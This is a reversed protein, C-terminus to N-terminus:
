IMHDVTDFAASLDLLLLLSTKRSCTNTVLDNHIKCLATETSHFERYASQVVPIVGNQVFLPNLQDLMAREIIKSLFTLNSVPRYNAMNECDLGPKKLSPHILSEKESLVFNSEEFCKNIIKTVFPSASEYALPIKSVNIPDLQCHTKNLRRILGRVGDSDVQHFNQLTSVVDVHDSFDVLFEGGLPVRSLDVRIGSIKETFFGSFASALDAASDSHPLIPASKRNLLSNLLAYLQRQDKGCAAVKHKYYEVKRCSILSVVADRASIFDLRASPTRLRRWRREAQRRVKRLSVISSDYWPADDRIIINKVVEPFHLASISLFFDRHMEVLHDASLASVDVANLSHEIEQSISAQDINRYNQFKITKTYSAPRPLDVHFTVLDHDSIVPDVPEITLGTLFSSDAPSLILDLTHGSIHTPGTVHNFFGNIDILELFESSYPKNQPYDVWYNFDGCILLRGDKSSFVELFSGFEEVFSRDTGPHGPRYIIAVRIIHRNVNITVELFEFSSVELDTFVQRINSMALSYIIAVGGGHDGFEQPRPVHLLSHTKPLSAEIINTDSRLLWTETLCLVDLNFESVLESVYSIKNRISRINLLGIKIPSSSSM